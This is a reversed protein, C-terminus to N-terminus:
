IFDNRFLYDKNILITKHLQQSFNYIYKAIVDCELNVLDGVIKEGIISNKITHPILSIEISDKNLKSITLSIGDIAISGRLICYKLLSDAIAIEYTSTNSNATIKKIKGIGDIHGYVFHGGFRGKAAISRELNVKAGTKLNKLTTISITELMVDFSLTKQLNNTVTLCVGNVAISDGIKIDDLIINAKIKLELYSPSKKILIITGIEEIIGTFM